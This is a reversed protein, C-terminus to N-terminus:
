NRKLKYINNLHSYHYGEIIFHIDNKPINIHNYINHMHQNFSPNRRRKCTYTKIILELSDIFNILYKKPFCFLTDSVHTDNNINKYNEYEKFLFNFKDFNINLNNLKKFFDIDFRTSIIFDLDENKLQELSKLYTKRQTSNEFDLFQYKKPKFFNILNNDDDSYYTTIYVETNLGWCDIINKKISEKTENFNRNRYGKYIGVLNIGLKM